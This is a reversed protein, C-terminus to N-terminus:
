KTVLNHRPASVYGLSERNGSHKVTKHYLNLELKNTGTVSTSGQKDSKCTVQLDEAAKYRIKYEQGQVGSLEAPETQTILNCARDDVSTAHADEEQATQLFRSDPALYQVRYAM